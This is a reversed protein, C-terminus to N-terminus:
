AAREVHDESMANASTRRVFGEVLLLALAAMWFWRGGSSRNGSSSGSHPAAERAWQALEDAAVVDPRLERAAPRDAVARATSALLAAAAVSDASVETILVVGTRGNVTGGSWSLGRRYLHSLPDSTVAAIVDFMWPQDLAKGTAALTGRGEYGPFAVAVPRDIPGSVPAGRAIAAQWAADADPREAAGALITVSPETRSAADTVALSGHVAIQIPRVGIDSPIRALDTRELHGRQFDSLIVVERRMPLPALWAVSADILEHLADSEVIRSLAATTAL